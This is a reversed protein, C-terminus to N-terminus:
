RWREVEFEGIGELSGERELPLGNIARLTMTMNHVVLVFDKALYTNGLKEKDLLTGCDEM